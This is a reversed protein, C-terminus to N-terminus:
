PAGGRRGTVEEIIGVFGVPGVHQQALRHGNLITVGDDRRPGAVAYHPVLVGNLMM